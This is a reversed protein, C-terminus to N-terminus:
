GSTCLKIWDAGARILERVRKRMPEVGDVVSPPMDAAPSAFVPLEIGCPFHDDAHGGTQSLIQVALLMRPGPFYGQQVARRVGDPTGGADRVTTFGADLTARCAPVAKLLLQSPPTMVSEALDLGTGLTDLHVHCDILGPLLTLDGGDVVVADARASVQSRPGAKLVHGDEILVTVGGRVVDGQAPDILAGGQVATILAAFDVIPCGHSVRTTLAASRPKTRPRAIAAVGPGMNKRQRLRVSSAPQREPSAEPRPM